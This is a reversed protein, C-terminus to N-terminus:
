DFDRYNVTAALDNGTLKESRRDEEIRKRERRVWKKFARKTMRHSVRRRAKQTKTKRVKLRRRRQM